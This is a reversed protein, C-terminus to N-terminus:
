SNGSRLSLIMGTNALLKYTRYEDRLQPADSKRPEFKIAVPLNNLLNLGKYTAKVVQVNSFFSGEYIIGFSGEGIKRGIKYHVGIVNSNNSGSSKPIQSTTTQPNVNSGKADKLVGADQKLASTATLNSIIQDENTTSM